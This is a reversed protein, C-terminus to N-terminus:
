KRFASYDLAGTVRAMAQDAAAQSMAGKKVRSALNAKVRGM